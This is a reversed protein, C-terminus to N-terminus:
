IYRYSTHYWGDLLMDWLDDDCDIFFIKIRDKWYDFKEENFIPPKASYHDKENNSHTM